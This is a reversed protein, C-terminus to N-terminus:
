NGGGNLLSRYSDAIMQPWSSFNILVDDVHTLQDIAGVRPLNRLPVDTIAEILADIFEATNMVPYPRVAANVNVEFDRIAPDVPESIRLANHHTGLQLLAQQLAGDSQIRPPRSLASDILPGITTSTPLDIFGRGFWKAYPRYRRAQLYCMEM